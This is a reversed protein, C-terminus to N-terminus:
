SKWENKSMKGSLLIRIIEAVTSLLAAMKVLFRRVRMYRQLVATFGAMECICCRMRNFVFLLEFQRFIYRPETFHTMIRESVIAEYMSRDRASHACGTVARMIRFKLFQKYPFPLFDAQIAVGCLLFNLVAAAYM